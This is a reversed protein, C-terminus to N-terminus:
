AAEHSAMTRRHEEVLAFALTNVARHQLIFETTERKAEFPNFICHLLEHVLTEEEGEVDSQQKWDANYDSEPLVRISASQTEWDANCDGGSNLGLEHVSAFKVTIRWDRLRLRKQWYALKEQLEENSM